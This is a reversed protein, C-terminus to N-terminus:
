ITPILHSFVHMGIGTSPHTALVIFIQGSPFIQGDHFKLLILEKLM